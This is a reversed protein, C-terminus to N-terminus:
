IKLGGEIRKQKSKFIDGYKKGHKNKLSLSVKQIYIYIYIYKKKKAHM